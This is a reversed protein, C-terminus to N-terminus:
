GRIFENCLKYTELLSNIYNELEIYEGTAHKLFQSAMGIVSKYQLKENLIHGEVPNIIGGSIIFNQCHLEFDFGNVWDIMQECTHGVSGIMQLHNAHYDSIGRQRAQELLTFNTGGFGAFEIAALPLKVLEELSKPGMGQGVEKVIVPFNTKDLFRKISEIAPRSYRDGEPQAFEQLPNIHIIVGTAQLKKTIEDLKSVQGSVLLEELQAIGFNTYLPAKDGILKRVAFDEWRKDELLPRCSGLGMGFGYEKCAKALNSNINKAKETGGTMSSVWFPFLLTGSAFEFNSQSSEPKMSGLLPEYFISGTQLQKSPTSKFALDIHDQKRDDTM